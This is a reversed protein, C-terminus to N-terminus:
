SEVAGGNKIALVKLAGPGPNRIGHPVGAPSEVLSGASAEASESGVSFIGRGELVFFEMDLEAAHPAISGGPNLTMHIVSAESSAFLRRGTFNEDSMVVFGEEVRVVRM